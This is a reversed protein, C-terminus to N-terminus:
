NTVSARMKERVNHALMEIENAQRIVTISLMDKDTRDVEAKLDAALKLLLVSDASMQRKRELNLQELIKEKAQQGHRGVEAELPRDPVTPFVRKDNMSQAPQPGLRVSGAFAAMALLMAAPRMWGKQFLRFRNELDQRKGLRVSHRM